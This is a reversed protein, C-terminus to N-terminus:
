KQQKTFNYKKMKREIQINLLVVITNPLLWSTAKSQFGCFYNRKQQRKQETQQTTRNKKEKERESKLRFVIRLIEKMVLFLMRVFM